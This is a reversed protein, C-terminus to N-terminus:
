SRSYGWLPAEAKKAKEYLFKGGLFSLILPLLAQIIVTAAETWQQLQAGKDFHNLIAYGAWFAIQIVLHIVNAQVNTLFPLRKILGVLLTILPIAYAVVTLDNVMVLLQELFKVMNEEM